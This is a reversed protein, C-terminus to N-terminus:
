EFYGNVAVGGRFIETATALGIPMKLIIHVFCGPECVLPADFLINIPLATAGVVSAPALSQIGVTLRRPARTGATASDVTALSVATSGVAVGWQFVTGTAGVAVVTNVLSIIVGQIFLNRGSIAATGAPNQYGFLAYDTEAGAVALFQYQGGLTTYGAATNSLTASAPAASNAWNATQGAATGHPVSISSLGNGVQVIPWDRNSNMDGLSVNVANVELRQASGVAGSNFIRMLLPLAYAQSLSPASTPRDLAGYLVDDIWFEVRDNHQVILYHNSVNASITPFTESTSTETGNYNTVGKLLGTSDLKFYIGDTPTATGTAIGIGLEAVNNTQPATSFRAWFEIYLPYTGYMPFSKYTQVRAVAASAVSNGSNFVLHAGSFATTMTAVVGQYVSTNFITHTFSDQFLLNDVGIRTRFDTTIDMPRSLRAVGAAGDHVECVTAVYGPLAIDTTPAIKLENNATVNATDTGFGSKIIVSM